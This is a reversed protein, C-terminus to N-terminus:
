KSVKVTDSLITKKMNDVAATTVNPTPYLKTDIATAMIKLLAFLPEGLVSSYQPQQGLKTTKGNSWVEKSAHEIKTGATGNIESDSTMTIVGGRLEIVSETDNHEITIARDMGINVVSGKLEFTLGRSVNFYMKLEEDGDFMFIHTGFYDGQLEKRVDTALEQMLHFEPAYQNGEHFRVVMLAGIKPISISGAQGAMGFMVPKQPNAWPLADTPIDPGHLRPVRIRCRGIRFPDDNDEVFGLYEENMDLYTVFDPQQLQNQKLKNKIVELLM